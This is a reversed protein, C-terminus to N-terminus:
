TEIEFVQEAPGDIDFYVTATHVNQRETEPTAYYLTVATEYEVTPNSDRLHLTFSIEPRLAEIVTMTAATEGHANKLTIEISPRQRFPTMKVGVAVRRKDEHIYIGIQEVRVDEPARPGELPDDFFTINM